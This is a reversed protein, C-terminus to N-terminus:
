LPCTLIIDWSRACLWHDHSLFFYIKCTCIKKENLTIFTYVDFKTRV